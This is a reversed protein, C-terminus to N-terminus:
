NEWNKLNFVKFNVFKQLIFMSNGIYVGRIDVAMQAICDTWYIMHCAGRPDYFDPEMSVLTKPPENDSKPENKKLNPNKVTQFILFDFFFDIIEM